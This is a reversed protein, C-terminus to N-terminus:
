RAPRWCAWWWRSSSARRSEQLVHSGRPPSRAPSNGSWAGGPPSRPTDPPCIPPFCAQCRRCTQLCACTQLRSGDAHNRRLRRHPRILRSRRPRKALCWRWAGRAAHSRGRGAKRRRRRPAAAVRARRAPRPLPGAHPPDHSHLRFGEALRAEVYPMYRRSRRSPTRGRRPEGFLLPDVGLLLGPGSLRRPRADGRRAVAHSRDAEAQALTAIGGNLSSRCM